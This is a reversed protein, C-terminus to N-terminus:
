RKERWQKMFDDDDFDPDDEAMEELQKNNLLLKPDYRENMELTETWVTEEDKEKEVKTWNGAKVQLDEWETTVGRAM